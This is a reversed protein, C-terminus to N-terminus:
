FSIKFLTKDLITHRQFQISENHTKILGPIYNNSTFMDPINEQESNDLVIHKGKSKGYVSFGRYLTVRM